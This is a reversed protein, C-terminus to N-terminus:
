PAKPVDGVPENRQQDDEAGGRRSSKIGAWWLGLGRFRKQGRSRTRSDADDYWVERMFISGDEEQRPVNLGGGGWGGM